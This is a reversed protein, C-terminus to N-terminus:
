NEGYVKFQHLTTGNGANSAQWAGWLELYAQKEEDYGVATQNFPATLGLTTFVGSVTNHVRIMGNMQLVTTGSGVQQATIDGDMDWPIALAIASYSSTQMFLGNVTAGLGATADLGVGFTFTTTTSGQITGAAKFKVTKGPVSFYMAPIICRPVPGTTASIVTSSTYTAKSINTSLDYLLEMQSLTYGSM